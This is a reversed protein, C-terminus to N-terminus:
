KGLTVALLIEHAFENIGKGQKVISSVVIM